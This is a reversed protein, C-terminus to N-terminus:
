LEDRSLYDQSTHRIRHVIVLEGEITYLIRYKQRRRGFLRCRLDIGFKVAEDAEPWTGADRSLEQIMKEIRLNWLLGAESSVRRSMSLTANVLDIRASRRVIM